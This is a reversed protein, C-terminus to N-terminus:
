LPFIKAVFKYYRDEGEETTYPIHALSMFLGAKAFYQGDVEFYEQDTLSIRSYKVGGYIFDAKAKMKGFSDVQKIYMDHVVVFKLSYGVSMIENSNLFRESNGFIYADDDQAVNDIIEQLSKKGVVRPYVDENVLWNEPQIKNPMRRLAEVEIEDLIQVDINYRSNKIYWNHIAGDIVEDDSVIRLISGDDLVGAVCKHHNKASKSLVTFRLRM